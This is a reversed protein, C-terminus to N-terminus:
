PGHEPENRKGGLVPEPAHRAADRRGASSAPLTRNVLDAVLRGSIMVIPVGGGPQTSGGVFYLGEVDASRNPPRFFATQNMRASLGFISGANGNFVTAFDEPTWHREFVIRSRIDSLGAVRAMRDLLLERYRPEWERWDVGPTLHPAITLVYLAEHGPPALDPDTRTPACIYWSPDTPPRKEVFIQHMESEYDATFYINHHILDPYTRDTGLYVIFASSSPEFRELRVDTYKRRVSAPILERYTYVLDSNAIVADAPLFTGDALHVGRARGDRVAIQAVPANLRVEVGFAEALRIVAEVMSYMGGKPFWVGQATELYPIVAYTAPIQRPSAGVYTAQFMFLQKLRPDHFRRDVADYMSRLADMKRGASITRWDLLDRWNLFLKNFFHGDIEEWLRRGNRMFARYADVDRPSLAHIEELTREEDPWLTFVAGDPFSARYIPEFRLLTLFDRMDRGVDQFLREIEGPLTLITPGTDFRFGGAELVNVKGGPRANKEIVTVRHGAAQLRVAASLGGMGAGIVVINAM